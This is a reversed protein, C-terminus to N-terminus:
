LDRGMRKYFCLFVIAFVVSFFADVGSALGFDGVLVQVAIKTITVYAFLEAGWKKMYWVGVLSIFRLAIISGYLMPYWGGVDRIAPASIAIIQGASFIFGVVSLISIIKPRKGIAISM